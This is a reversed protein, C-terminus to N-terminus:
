RESGLIRIESPPGAVGQRNALVREVEGNATRAIAESVAEQQKVARSFTARAAAVPGVGALRELERRDRPEM